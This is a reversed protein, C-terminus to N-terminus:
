PAPVLLGTQKDALRQAMLLMERGGPVTAGFEDYIVKSAKIFAAKNSTNVKMGAARIKKLMESDIRAAQEYVFAQTEKATQELVERVDAPLTAWKKKGVMVYAPTYLYGTLSLYNQVEFLRAGHIKAFTNEQGDMAGTKLATFVESFPLLGPKAGYRRFSKDRWNCNPIRLRVGKFDGPVSIPRRNTTVHRFGNEWLAIIKYGKKEVAPAIKPWFIEKEIRRVHKRSKVLYPMDFLGFEAAVTPMFFSPLTLDVTGLKLRRLLVRDKGLRGAGFVIVKAKGALRANARKAFEDASIQFLSGPAGIHGFKLEIVAGAVPSATPLASAGGLLVVLGLAKLRQMVTMGRAPKGARRAM